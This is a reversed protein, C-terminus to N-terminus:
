KNREVLKKHEEVRCVTTSATFVLTALALGKLVTDFDGILCDSRFHAAASLGAANGVFCDGLVLDLVVTGATAAVTVSFFADVEDSFFDAGGDPSFLVDCCVRVWHIPFFAGITVASLLSVGALFVIEVRELM